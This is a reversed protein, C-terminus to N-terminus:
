GAHFGFAGNGITTCSYVGGQGDVFVGRFGNCLVTCDTRGGDEWEPAGVECTRLRTCGVQGDGEGVSRGVLSSRLQVVDVLVVQFQTSFLCALMPITMGDMFGGVGDGEKGIEGRLIGVGSISGHSRCGADGVITSGAVLVSPLIGVKTGVGVGDGGVSVGIGVVNGGIDASPLGCARCHLTQYACSRAFSTLTRTDEITVLVPPRRAISRHINRDRVGVHGALSPVHLM